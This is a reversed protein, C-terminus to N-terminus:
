GWCLKGPRKWALDGSPLIIDARQGPFASRLKGCFSLGARHLRDEVRRSRSQVVAPRTEPYRLDHRLQDSRTM